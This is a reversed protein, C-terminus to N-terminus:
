QEFSSKVLAKSNVQKTGQGFSVRVLKCAGISSKPVKSPEKFIMFIRSCGVCNQICAQSCSYVLSRQFERSLRPSKEHRGGYQLSTHAERLMELVKWVRKELPQTYSDGSAERKRYLGMALTTQLMKHCQDRNISVQSFTQFEKSNSQSIWSTQLSKHINKWVGRINFSLLNLSIGDSDM